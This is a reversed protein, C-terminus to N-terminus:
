RVDLQIFAIQSKIEKLWVKVKNNFKQTDDLNAKGWNFTEQTSNHKNNVTTTVTTVVKYKTPKVRLGRGGNDTHMFSGVEEKLYFFREHIVTSVYDDIQLNITLLVELGLEDDQITQQQFTINSAFSEFVLKVAKRTQSIWAQLLSKERSNDFVLPKM